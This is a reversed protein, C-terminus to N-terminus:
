DVLRMPQGPLKNYRIDGSIEERYSIFKVLCNEAKIIKNKMELSKNKKNQNMEYLFEYTLDIYNQVEKKHDNLLNIFQKRKKAKIKKQLDTFCFENLKISM